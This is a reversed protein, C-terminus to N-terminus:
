ESSGDIHDGASSRSGDISFTTESSHGSIDRTAVSPPAYPAGSVGSRLTEGMEDYQRLWEVAERVPSIDATAQFPPARVVRRQGPPTEQLGDPYPTLPRLLPPKAKKKLFNIPACM